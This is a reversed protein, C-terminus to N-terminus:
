CLAVTCARRVAQAMPGPGGAALGANFVEAAVYPDAGIGALADLVAKLDVVGDGPLVRASMAEAFLDPAPEPTADGLQVYHIREGPIRALLEFDPGGPQRQWHWVDLLIGGNSRGARDVVDWATALDPLATWPLFEICVRQGGAAALDCVEAFGAVASDLSDLHTELTCAAITHAGFRSAFEVMAEAEDRLGSGPGLTWQTLAEVVPVTLGADALISETADVGVERAHLPWLSVTRFGAEAVAPVLQEFTARDCRMPDPLLTAPCLGVDAPAFSM